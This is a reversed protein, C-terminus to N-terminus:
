LALLAEFFFQSAVTLKVSSDDTSPWGPHGHRHAGRDRPARVGGGIRRAGGQVRIPQAGRPSAASQPAQQADQVHELPPRPVKDHADRRPGAAPLLGPRGHPPRGAGGTRGPYAWRARRPSPAQQFVERHDQQLTWEIIIPDLEDQNKWRSDTDSFRPDAALELDGMVECLGQWEEDSGVALTIWKDEGRCPYVGHPAMWRDKNGMSERVRGNMTYDMISEAMFPIFNEALPMEVLQGKGTRRRHWLATFVAFCGAAGAAADAAVTEGRRSPEEDPYGRTHSHGSVGDVHMGLCRFNTYPGSLGFAPMRVMIIQPNKERLWDYTIKLKDMTEPVNNEIFVDSKEILKGLIELGEPRLLDMTVSLKNRGTSTMSTSRNWPRPGPDWNPFVMGAGTGSAKAQEVLEKPVKAYQGRTSLVMGQITELRILEAGWDALHMTAYPGAFIHTLEVIRVGDLPLKSM